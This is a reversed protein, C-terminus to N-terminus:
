FGFLVVWLLVMALSFMGLTLIDVVLKTKRSARVIPAALDHPDVGDVRKDM